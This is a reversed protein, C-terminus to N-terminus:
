SAVYQAEVNVVWSPRKNKSDEGLFIAGSDRVFVSVYGSVSRQHLHGCIGRAISEGIEREGPIGQVIVQVRSRVFASSPTRAIYPEPPPGGYTVLYVCLHPDQPLPERAFLNRGTSLTGSTFSMGNLAAALDSAVNKFVM